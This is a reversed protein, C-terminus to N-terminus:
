AILETEVPDQFRVRLVTDGSLQVHNGDYIEARSIQVGNVYVGNRSGLDTLVFGDDQRRLEAHARSVFGRRISLGDGVDRGVVTCEPLPHVRGWPDILCARPEAAPASIVDSAVAEGSYEIITACETCLVGRAAKREHCVACADQAPVLDQHSPLSQPDM